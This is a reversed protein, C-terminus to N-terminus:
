YGPHRRSRMGPVESDKRFSGFSSMNVLEDLVWKEFETGETSQDAKRGIRDLM